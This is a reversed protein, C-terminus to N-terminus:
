QKAVKWTGGYSSLRVSAMFWNSKLISTIKDFKLKELGMEIGENPLKLVDM